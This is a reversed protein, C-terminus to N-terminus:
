LDEMLWGLNHIGAMKFFQNENQFAQKSMMQIFDPWEGTPIEVVAIACICNCIDKMYLM